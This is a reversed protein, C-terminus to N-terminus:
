AELTERLKVLLTYPSVPKSIFHSMDEPFGKDQLVGGTYGSIYLAKVSPKIKIIEEYAEKGNKKPMIVDFVLLDIKSANEIFTHVADDGDAAEMVTYGAEELIKRISDRVLEDDEALLVTEAGSAPILDEEREVESVESHVLPFYISFTSGKGIEGSVNIYGNNQKVTGYVMALGLGTGKGVEKTTYFPEFIKSQTEKDMGIGTDTISLLAYMGHKGYGYTRIFEENIELPKTEVTLIGGKYMADRANTFINLLAQEIHVTDAMIILERESLQIKLTIDESLIRPLFKETNRVIANLDVPRPQVEQKRSFALLDQVLKAGRDASEIIPGVHIRLPDDKRMKLHLLYAFGTIATLVNNFDHAIGGALQGVTEMKQAQLLQVELKKRETIDVIVAVFVPRHEFTSYQLFVEVPYKTKDKRLHVTTFQVVKQKGQHLLPDLLTEFAERTYEPKIDLPTMERLEEMSYGLNERAGLNVLVFELTKADFIYIENQSTELVRGLSAEREEALKHETIDRFIGILYKKGELVMASSGIDAYFISGDKRKVPIDSAVALEGREQRGFQETVYLLDEEPHINDVGLKRLEDLTYGLMKCITENGILFKKTQADAILIGDITNNFISKFREESERLKKEAQEREIIEKKLEENTLIIKGSSTRLDAAMEAFSAALEGIEDKTSVDIATHLNGKGLENTAKKLKQIPQSISRSILIGVLLALVIIVAGSIGLTKKAEALSSRTKIGANKLEEEEKQIQVYLSNILDRRAVHINQEGTYVDAVPAHRKDLSNIFEGGVALFTEARSEIENIRDNDGAPSSKLAAVYGKLKSAAEEAKKRNREGGRLYYEVSKISFKRAESKL